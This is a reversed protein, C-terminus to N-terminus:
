TTQKQLWKLFHNLEVESGEVEIERLCQEESGLSYGLGTLHSHVESFDQTRFSGTREVGFSKLFIPSMPGKKFMLVIIFLFIHSDKLVSGGGSFNATNWLCTEMLIWNTKCM